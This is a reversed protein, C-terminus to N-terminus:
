GALEEDTVAIASAPYPREDAAPHLDDTRAGGAVLDQEGYATRTIEDALKCM